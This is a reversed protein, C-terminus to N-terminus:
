RKRREPPTRLKLVYDGRELPPNAPNARYIAKAQLILKLAADLREQPTKAHWYAKDYGPIQNTSSTKRITDM